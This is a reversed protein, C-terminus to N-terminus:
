PDPTCVWLGSPQGFHRSATLGLKGDITAEIEAQARDDRRTANPPVDAPAESLSARGRRVEGEIDRLSSGLGCQKRISPRLRESRNRLRNAEAGMLPTGKFCKM